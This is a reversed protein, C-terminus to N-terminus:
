GVGRLVKVERMIKDTASKIQELSPDDEPPFLENPFIPRGFKIKYHKKRLLFNKITTGYLGDSFVPVVPKGTRWALFAVGGHIKNQINGDPSKGGEPFIQVSYGKSLISIHHQLSQEYNKYGSYAPYAGWIHFLTGGYILPKIKGTTYFGKKRAVYYIPFLRSFPNLSAPLVIPDM